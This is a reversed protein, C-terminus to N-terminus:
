PSDVNPLYLRLSHVVTHPENPTESVTVCYSVKMSSPMQQYAITGAFGQTFLEVSSAPTCTSTTPDCGLALVVGTEKAGLVFPSPGAGYQQWRLTYLANHHATAITVAAANCCNMVIAKGKVGLVPNDAGNEEIKAVNGQCFTGLPDISADAQSGADKPAADPGADASSAVSGGCATLLLLCATTRM